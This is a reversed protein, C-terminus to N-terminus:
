GVDSGQLFARVARVFEALAYRHVHHGVDITVLACNPIRGAVDALLDQPIHSASGGAVMLTPASIRALGEWWSSDPDRLEDNVSVLAQWDFPLAGEPRSRPPAQDRPVPPPTDELILREFRDPHGEALLYAVAGGMSHGVLISRELGLQDLVGLVDDRMLEFSYSGTWSSAGHGRLDIAVVRFSGEFEERVAYWDSAQEGLAHLLVMPPADAPGSITCALRVNGVTVDIRETM